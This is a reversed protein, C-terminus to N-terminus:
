ELCLRKCCVTFAVENVSRINILKDKRKPLCLRRTRGTSDYKRFGCCDGLRLARELQISREKRHHDYLNVGQYWSLLSRSRISPQGQIVKCVVVGVNYDGLTSRGDVTQSSRAFEVFGTAVGKGGENLLTVEWTLGVCDPIYDDDAAVNSVEGSSDEDSASAKGQM